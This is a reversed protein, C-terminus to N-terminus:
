RGSGSGAGAARLLSDLVARFNAPPAAGQIASPRDSPRSRMSLLFTPTSRVGASGARQADDEVIQRMTRSSVCTRFAGREVGAAVALSDFIRGADGSAAWRPQTAFIADHVPWFKGQAGACMAAEAAPGANPHISLPLNVFAMRVRGTRVYDRVVSPATQDEWMKCYPCQFDSVVVLWLPATSDGMIRAADARAVDQPAAAPTGTQAVASTAAAQSPPAADRHAEEKRSCAALPATLLLFAARLRM